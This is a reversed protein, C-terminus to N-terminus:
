AVCMGHFANENAQYKLKCFNVTLKLFLHSVQSKESNEELINIM